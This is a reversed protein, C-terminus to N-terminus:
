KSDQEEIKSLILRYYAKAEESVGIEKNLLMRNLREEAEKDALFGYAVYAKLVGEVGEAYRIIDILDDVTPAEVYFLLYAPNDMEYTEFGSKHLVERIKAIVEPKRYQPAILFFGTAFPM